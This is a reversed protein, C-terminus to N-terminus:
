GGGGNEREFVLRQAVRRAEEEDSLVSANLEGDRIANVLATVAEDNDEWINTLTKIRNLALERNMRTNLCYCTGVSKYEDRRVYGIATGVDGFREVESTTAGLEEAITDAGIYIEEIEGSDNESFEQLADVFDEVTIESM